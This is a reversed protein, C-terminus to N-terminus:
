SGRHLRADQSGESSGGAFWEYLAPIVLLTLLTSSALGGVVVTALPRQVESGTGQAILLPALGVGTTVATMVVPRFRLCAGEIAAERVPVGRERLQNLTTVLVMANELAIGFLGIFGVSAPVSLNQGTVVLAVVGGVLALPINLLILTANRLSNFPSSFSRRSLTTITSLM